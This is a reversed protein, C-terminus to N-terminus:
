SHFASDDVYLMWPTTGDTPALVSYTIPLTALSSRAFTAEVDGEINGRPFVFRYEVDGDIVDLIAAYEPLADGDTPADYRFVGASPESVDGGGFALKVTEANWQELALTVTVNNDVVDKRVPQRSQWAGFEEIELGASFAAGDESVYGVKYFAANPTTTASTPLATGVPATWFDGSVGVLLETTDRAGAM